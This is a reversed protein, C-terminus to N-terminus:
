DFNISLVDRGRGKVWVSVLFLAFHHPLQSLSPFQVHHYFQWNIMFISNVEAM